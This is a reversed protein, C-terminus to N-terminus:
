PALPLSMWVSDDQRFGLRTYFTRVRANASETELFAVLAGHDRAAQLASHLLHRGHGQDREDVYIEDVLAEIGGSELSWGWTIVCYGTLRTGDDIVHVIGHVDDRLLPALATTIRGRDFAHGDIACFREILALVEDADALTARRIVM